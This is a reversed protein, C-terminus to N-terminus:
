SEMVENLFEVFTELSAIVEEIEQKTYIDRREHPFHLEQDPPFGKLISRFYRHNSLKQFEKEIDEARESYARKLSTEEFSTFKPSNIM